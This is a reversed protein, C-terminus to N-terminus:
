EKICILGAFFSTTKDYLLGWGENFATHKYANTTVSDSFRLLKREKGKWIMGYWGCQNWYVDKGKQKGDFMAKGEATKMWRYGKPCEYKKSKDWLDSASIAFRVNAHISSQRFGGCDDTREMWSLDHCGAVDFKDCGKGCKLVGWSENGLVTNCDNKNLNGMDCKEVASHVVLDGCKTPSCKEKLCVMKDGCKKLHLDAKNACGTKKDCIDTTCNNNDDCGVTQAVCKGGKCVDNKTCADGDSCAGESLKNSCGQTPHCSDITCGNGDDCLQKNGIGCKGDLCSDNSTCVSDDANCSQGNMPKGAYKCKGSNDDCQDQTCFFGDDCGKANGPWCTGKACKDGITCNKGDSCPDTNIAYVCGKVKDCADDTCPNGDICQKLAGPKCKGGSCKDVESCVSGDADCVADDKSKADYVCGGKTVSCADLTCPNKDNCLTKQGLKCQGDVCKDGKTCPNDDANCAASNFFTKCGEKADCGNDTCLDGDDCKKPKGATCEGKQCTDSVTCINSDADCAQGEFNTGDHTCKGTAKSCADLTCAEADDCVKGIGAKCKGNECADPTCADGDSDCPGSKNVAKCGDKPDCADFTCLNADDCGKKSGGTCTGAKCKDGITCVSNDANCLLGESNKGNFSCVGTKANCKDTTCTSGDDCNKKKGVVCSGDNCVDGITCANGDADCGGSIKFNECGGKQTCTDKTCQNNDNCNVPNTTCKGGICTDDKTCKDEDDCPKVNNQVICGKKKDCVSDTCPNGDYCDKSNGKCVGKTCATLVTCANNDDCVTKDNLEEFDCNGTKFDCKGLVCANGPDCKKPSGANCKGQKCLAGESCPNGDDCGAADLFKHQCGEKPDCIDGTCQNTDDCDIKKGVKCVGSVCTDGKTCASGDADCGSNLENHKCGEGGDKAAKPDCADATCGNNDDCTGEDTKGNCDNDVGDCKEPLPAPAKCASLGGAECVRDGKCTGASGGKGNKDDEKGSVSCVTKLSKAIALKSCTCTGFGGDGDKVCQKETTGEVSKADKCTYGPLCDPNAGCKLGCFAGGAGYDVCLAGKLGLGQCTSSEVCPDCLLGFKPVCVNAVDGGSNYAACVYAGPCDEVCLRACQKGDPTEICISSDCEANADCPCNPGGPCNEGGVEEPTTQGGDQGSDVSLKIDIQFGSSADTLTDKEEDADPPRVECSCLAASM